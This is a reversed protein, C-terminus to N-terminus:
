NRRMGNKALIAAVFERAKDPANKSLTVSRPLVIEKPSLKADVVDNKLSDGKVKAEGPVKGGKEMLSGTSSLNSPSLTGENRNSYGKQLKGFYSQPESMGGNAYGLASKLKDLGSYNRFGKSIEQAGSSVPQPNPQTVPGGEAYRPVMGGHYGVLTGASLGGKDAGGGAMLAGTAAGAMPGGFATAVLPLAAGAANTLGGFMGNQSKANQQALAANASNMQSQNAIQSQNNGQMANLLMQQENQAMNGYQGIAGAQQGVQQGAVNAMMGQQQQLAQQAALQQQAQLVAQQGVANQQNAGGQMGAQRAIMGANAGAGRQGAMLAAQNATNAATNMALQAQAPNPGIGQAQQGLQNALQQQQNFVNSQNGIGNQGQLANVFAQQDSLADQSQLGYYKERGILNEPTQINASGAQFGAGKGSDFLSGIFGM